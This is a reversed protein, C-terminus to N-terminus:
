IIIKSNHLYVFCSRMNKKEDVQGVMTASVPETMNPELVVLILAILIRTNLCSICDRCNNSSGLRKEIAHFCKGRWGGNM